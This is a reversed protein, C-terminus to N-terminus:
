MQNFKLESLISMGLRHEVNIRRDTEKLKISVEM